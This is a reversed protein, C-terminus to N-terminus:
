ELLRLINERRAKAVGFQKSHPIPLERPVFKEDFGYCFNFCLCCKHASHLCEPRLILRSAFDPGYEIAQEYLGPAWCMADVLTLM